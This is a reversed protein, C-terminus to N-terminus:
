EAYTVDFDETWAQTAACAAFGPCEVVEVTAAAWARVKGPGARLQGALQAPVDVEFGTASARASRLTHGEWATELQVVVQEPDLREPKPAWSFRLTTGAKVVRPSELNLRVPGLLDGFTARYTTGARRPGAKPGLEVEFTSHPAAAELSGDPFVASSAECGRQPSHYGDYPSGWDASLGGHAFSRPSVGDLLVRTDAPFELCDSASRLDEPPAFAVDWERTTVSRTLRLAPFSPLPAVPGCGSLAVAVALALRGKTTWTRCEPPGLGPCPM